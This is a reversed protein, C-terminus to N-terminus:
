EMEKKVGVMSEQDKQLRWVMSKNKEDATHRNNRISNSDFPIMPLPSEFHGTEGDDPEIYKAM